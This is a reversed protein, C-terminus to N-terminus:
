AGIPFGISALYAANYLQEYTVGKFYPNNTEFEEDMAAVDYVSVFAGHTGYSNSDYAEGFNGTVVCGSLGSSSFARCGPYYIRFMCFRANTGFSFGGGVNQPFQASIRSYQASYQGYSSIEIDSYGGATLDLNLVSRNLALTGYNFYMTNVGYIGTVVCGNLTLTRANGSSGFFETEECIINTINLDNIELNAPAVFKGFLHLNRITTGRGNIVACNIPINNFYGEPYLDNMDWVVGEPCVVTDGSVAIASLFEAFNSVTVTAM